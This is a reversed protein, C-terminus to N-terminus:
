WAYHLEVARHATTLRLMSVARWLFVAEGAENASGGSSSSSSPEAASSTPIDLLTPDIAAAHGLTSLAQPYNTSVMDMGLALSLL